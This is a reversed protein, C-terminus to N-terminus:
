EGERLKPVPKRTAKAYICSACFFANRPTAYELRIGTVMKNKVLQRAAEPSIHGMWGHFCELTLREEAVNVVGDKHEVKYVRTSSHPLVGVVDNDEGRITCKGGGFMVSFEAEDLRGVSVLTYSVESSFPVNLLWLRTMGEDSPVDVVLEGKGSTSFTQKNAARFHRLVIM